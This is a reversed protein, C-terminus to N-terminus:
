INPDCEKGPFNSVGVLDLPRLGAARWLSRAAKENRGGRSAADTQNGDSEEAKSRVLRLGM